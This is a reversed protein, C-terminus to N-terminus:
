LTIHSGSLNKAVGEANIIADKAKASAAAVEREHTFANLVKKLEALIEQKSMGIPFSQRFSAVVHDKGEVEELIDFPVDQYNNGTALHAYQSVDNIKLTFM